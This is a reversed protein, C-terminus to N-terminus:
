FFFCVGLWANEGPTEDKPYFISETNPNQSFRLGLIEYQRRNLNCEFPNFCSTGGNICLKNSM